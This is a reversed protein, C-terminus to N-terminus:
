IEKSDFLRSKTQNLAETLESPREELMNIELGVTAVHPISRVRMRDGERGLLGFLQCYLVGETRANGMERKVGKLNANSIMQLMGEIERGKRLFDTECLAVRGGKGEWNRVKGEIRM